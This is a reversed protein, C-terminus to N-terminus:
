DGKGSSAIKATDPLICICFAFIETNQKYLKLSKLLPSFLICSCRCYGSRQFPATTKKTQAFSLFFKEDTLYM